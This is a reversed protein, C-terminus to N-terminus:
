AAKRRKSGASARNQRPPRSRAPRGILSALPIGLRAHLRRIMEVTLGRKGNLVESVRGTTGFIPVLEKRTLGQQEMRFRIAAVPDLEPIPERQREYQHVLMALLELKDRECTGPKSAWLRRIEALAEEYDQETAILRVNM